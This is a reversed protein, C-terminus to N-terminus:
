KQGWCEFHSLPWRWAGAASYGRYLSPVWQVPPQTPRLAPRSLHPFDRGWRSEIGSVDLGYATAIGVSSGPMFAIPLPFTEGVVPRRSPGLTDPYTLAGSKKVNPVVLTTPGWGWTGAAKVGLPIEAVWKKSASNVGPCMTRDTDVLDRSRGVLLLHRLWQAVGPGM